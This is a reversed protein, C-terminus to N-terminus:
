SLRAASPSSTLGALSRSWNENRLLGSHRVPLRECGPIGRILRVVTDFLPKPLEGSLYVSTIVDLPISVGLSISAEWEDVLAVVRYEREFRFVGRKIFPLRDSAGMMPSLERWEVYSVSGQTINPLSVAAALKDRDFRICAGLGRDAFVQWHHATEKGEAMCAAFVKKGPHSRAFAAMAERDNLDSWTKPEVLALHRNLLADLMSPISTYRSLSPM